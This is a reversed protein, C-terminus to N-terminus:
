LRALASVYASPSHWGSWSWLGGPWDLRTRMPPHVLGLSLWPWRAWVDKRFYYARHDRLRDMIAKDGAKPSGFSVLRCDTCAAHLTAIAGGASHGTVIVPPTAPAHLLEVDPWAERLSRLYGQHAVGISVHPWEAHHLRGNRWLDRVRTWLGGSSFETGRYVVVRWGDRQVIAAQTAGRSIWKLTNFGLAEAAARFEREPDYVWLSLRALDRDSPRTM